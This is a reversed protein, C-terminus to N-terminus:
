RPRASFAIWGFGTGGLFIWPTQTLMFALVVLVVMVLLPGYCLILQGAASHFIAPHNYSPQSVSVCGVWRYVLLNLAQAIGVVVTTEM